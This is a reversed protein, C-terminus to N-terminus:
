EGNGPPGFLLLGRRRPCGPPFLSPNAIPLQILNMVEERVSDLGGIDSWYVKSVEKDVSPSSSSSSKIAKLCTLTRSRSAQYVASSTLPESSNVLAEVEEEEDELGCALGDESVLRFWSSKNTNQFYRLSVSHKLSPNAQSHVGHFQKREKKFTETGKRTLFFNNSVKDEEKCNDENDGSVTAFSSLGELDLIDFFYRSLSVPLSRISKVPVLVRHTTQGFYTELANVFGTTFGDVAKRSQTSDAVVELQNL